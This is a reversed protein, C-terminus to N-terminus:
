AATGGPATESVLRRQSTPLMNQLDVGITPPMPQGAANGPIGGSALSRMMRVTDIPGGGAQDPLPGPIAELEKITALAASRVTEKDDDIREVFDKLAKLNGQEIQQPLVIKTFIAILDEIAIDREEQLPDESANTKDIFTRLSIAGLNKLMALKTLKNQEDLGTSDGYSVKNRYDGNYLVTPDYIETFARVGEMGHIKKKGACHKEDFAAAVRNGQMLMSEMDQQATALESNFSGALAVVGKASVVSADADGSRQVPWTAQRHATQIIEVVARQAEFNVPPRDRLIAAKGDGTGLLIAAPGYDEENEINDLVVPAYINQKMDDLLRAMFDQATRLAPIIDELAGRYSGDHTLRKSEVVPCMDFGHASPESLWVMNSGGVSDLLGVPLLSRGQYERPLLSDGLAVGWYTSDFYWVEELFESDDMGKVTRYTSFETFAPHNEGYEVKLSAVRRQRTFLIKVLRDRNDHALPYAQRPDLHMFYPAREATPTLQSDRDYFETWPIMFGAGTHFWDRFLKKLMKPMDSRDWYSQYVRKRKQALREGRDASTGPPPPVFISPIGAGATNIKDELAGKYVNQVLPSMPENEGDDWIVSWQDAAIADNVRIQQKWAAHYNVGWDKAARVDDLTLPM